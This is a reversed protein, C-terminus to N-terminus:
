VGGKKHRLKLLTVKTLVVTTGYSLLLSLSAGLIGLRPILLANLILSVACSSLTILALTGTKKSYFLYFSDLRYLGNLAFAAIVFPFVFKADEYDHAIVHDFLLYFIGVMLVGSILFFLGIWHKVREYVPSFGTTHNHMWEFAFPMLAQSVSQVILSMAMGIQYGVFFKGVADAGEYYKLFLRNFTSYILIGTTYFIIPYGYHFATRAISLDFSLVFLKQRLLWLICALLSCLSVILEVMVITKFSASMSLGILVFTMFSLTRIIRWVGFMVPKKEMQLIGLVINEVELSYAIVAAASLIHLPLSVIGQILPYILALTVLSLGFVVTLLAISTSVYRVFLDPTHHEAHARIVVQSLGCGVIPGILALILVYLSYLGYDFPNLHGTMFPVLLFISLSYISNLFGYWITNKLLKSINLSTLSFIAPKESIQKSM